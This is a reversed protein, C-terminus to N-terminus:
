ASPREASSQMTKQVVHANIGSLEPFREVVTLADRWGFDDNGFHSYIERILRLDAPTDLTWRHQSFDKSERVYTTRFLDAREYFLPTVHERQHPQDCIQWANKLAAFSFVETDLGRPYTRPSVNCAFDAQKKMFARVVEDVVAPDILPCDSTIRVIADCGYALAARYYRDLVDQESGRFTATQLRACEEIIPDDMAATSTAVVVEDLLASRRLRRIVRTIVSVGALDMLVKGPLRTSGMRAQVIATIKM